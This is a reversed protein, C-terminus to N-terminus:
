TGPKDLILNRGVQATNPKTETEHLPGQIWDSTTQNGGCAKNRQQALVDQRCTVM